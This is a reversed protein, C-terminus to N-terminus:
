DRGRVISPEVDEDADSPRETWELDTRRAVPIVPNWLGHGGPYSRQPRQRRVKPKTM